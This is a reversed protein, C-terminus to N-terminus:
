LNILAKPYVTYNLVQITFTLYRFETAEGSVYYETLMLGINEQYQSSTLTGLQWDHTWEFVEQVMSPM